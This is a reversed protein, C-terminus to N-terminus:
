MENVKRNERKTEGRKFLLYFVVGLLVNRSLLLGTSLLTLETLGKYNVPYILFTIFTLLGFLTWIAKRQPYDESILVLLPIAWLLYQPSLVKGGTIFTMIMLLALRPLDDIKWENLRVAKFSHVLVIGMLLIMVYLSLKALLPSLGSGLNWAGFSVGTRVPYGFWHAVILVSSYFSELQIGRRSHYQLFIWFKSGAAVWFPAWVAAACLLSVPIGYRVDKKFTGQKYATILFLPAIIVPYLKVAFGFGILAWATVRRGGTYLIVAGLVLIAPVFDFRQYVVLGVLAPLLIYFLGALYVHKSSYGRRSLYRYILLLGIMDVFIMEAMFFRRYSFIDASFLKPLVFFPLAGPPYELPFDRFPIMGKLIYSAYNFYVRLDIEVDTIMNVRLFIMLRTLVWVVLLTIRNM